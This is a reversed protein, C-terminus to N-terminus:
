KIISFSQKCIDIWKNYFGEGAREERGPRQVTTPVKELFFTFCLM